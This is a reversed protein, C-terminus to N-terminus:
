QRHDRATDELNKLLEARTLSLGTLERLKTNDLCFEEGVAEDSVRATGSGYGRMLADAVDHVPLAIGSSVNFIGRADADLLAEAARGLFGAPLFDKRTGPAMRLEIENRTELTKIATSIFTRRGAPERGFVNSMRMILLRDGIRARLGAEVAAKNRGYVTRPAPIEDERLPPEVRNAYVARSSLMVYRADRQAAIEAYRGDAALDPAVPVNFLEPDWVCNVIIDGSAVDRSELAGGAHHRLAFPGALHNALIGAIYSRRGIIHVTM